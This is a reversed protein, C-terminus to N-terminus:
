IRKTIQPYCALSTSDDDRRYNNTHMDKYERSPMGCLEHTELNFVLYFFFAFTCYPLVISLSM